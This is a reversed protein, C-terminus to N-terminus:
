GNLGVAVTEMAPVFSKVQEWSGTFDNNIIEHSVAGNTATANSWILRGGNTPYSKSGDKSVFCKATSEANELQYQTPKFTERVQVRLRVGDIEPNLINVELKEGVALKQLDEVKVGFYKAAMGFSATLNFARRAKPKGVDFRADDANLASLATNRAPNNLIEAIDLKVKDGETRILSVLLTEGIVLAALSKKM